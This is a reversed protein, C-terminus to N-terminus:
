AAGTCPRSLSFHLLEEPESSTAPVVHLLQFGAKELLRISGPNRQLVNAHIEIVGLTNFAYRNVLNAASTGIGKGWLARAVVIGLEAKREEGPKFSLGVTGVSVASGAPLIAWRVATKERFKDRHRQLWQLGVDLSEPVPDGALDAAEVDSARAFWAPIDEETLERLYVSEGVLDPVDDPFKIFHSMQELGYTVSLTQPLGRASPVDAQGFPQASRDLHEDTLGQWKSGGNGV